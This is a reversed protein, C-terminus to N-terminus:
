PEEGDLDRDAGTPAPTQQGVGPGPGAAGPGVGQGRWRLGPGVKCWGTLMECDDVERHRPPVSVKCISAPIM